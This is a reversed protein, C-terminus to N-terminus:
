TRNTAYTYPTVDLHFVEVLLKFNEFFKVFIAHKENKIVFTSFLVDNRNNKELSLLLTSTTTSTPILSLVVGLSVPFSDAFILGVFIM